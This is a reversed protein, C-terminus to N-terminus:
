VGRHRSYVRRWWGCQETMCRSGQVIRGKVRGHAVWKNRAEVGRGDGKAGEDVREQGEMM